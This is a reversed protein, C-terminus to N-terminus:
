SSPGDGPPLRRATTLTAVLPRTIQGDFHAGIHEEIDDLLGARRAPDMAQTGSYSLMLQRYEAATYTQDWDYRQVVVGTFRADDRLAAAIPPAVGDRQAAPPGTHAEGYREYIPQVAAFFGHDAPDDVQALDVVALVGGPALLRAPRDRQASRTIWHYATASFVADFAAPAAPVLEFDGVTITLDPDPIVARLTRAMAPGLEVAHVRAGRGLLDRTAQGTGPGVELVHPRSPLQAFLRDFLVAPYGPRIADYIDPVNDFTTRLRSPEDM